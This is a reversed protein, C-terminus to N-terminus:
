IFYDRQMYLVSQKSQADNYSCANVAPKYYGEGSWVM